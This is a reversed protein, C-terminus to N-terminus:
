AELVPALQARTTIGLKPFIHYLHAGVTRPSIYLRQGIERNTLGQAAMRAIQLEQETLQMWAGPGSHQSERSARLEQRARDVWPTAGLALLSDRAARLPPRAQVVKRRRRLWTGYQLLLRARYLPWATLDDRLAAQFLAEANDDDAVLPRAYAIGVELRPSPSRRARHECTALQERAEDIRGAHLAAEAFEGIRWAARIHHHAPDHPDFTRRLHEFAEEHRGASLALLARAFQTDALVASAARPVAIAEAEALLSEAVQEDGHIACTAALATKAAAEWLPRGLQSALKAAQEAAATAGSWNGTGVANWAQLALAEPLLWMIGQRRLGGIAEALLIASRDFAGVMHLATGLAFATEPDCSTPAAQSVAHSITDGAGDPDAMAVISLVRPDGEPASLGQAAAVIRDRIDSGADSWWSRLAAARLLRVAVDNGEVASAEEAAEVLSAVALSDTVPRAEVLDRLLRTRALDLPTCGEPNIESLLRDTRDIEGLDLALEAAGLLRQQRVSSDATLEAARELAAVRVSPGRCPTATVWAAELEDAVGEDPGTISAARHWASRHRDDVLVAALAAHARRRRTAPERQYIVAPLLPHRFDLRTGDHGVLGGDVAPAVDDVSPVPDDGLVAAAALIEDLTARQDVSAVLLITRTAAPLHLFQEGFVRDLRATTPLRDPRGFMARDTRPAAALEVLALPNGAAEALLRARLGADLGPARRELLAIASAEDLADICLEPVSFGALATEHGDRLAILLAVPEPALRRAVFGLVTATVPDLWHGDDVVILLPRKSAVSALLELTAVAITFTDRTAPNVTEITALLAEHHPQPQGQAAELLPRLIQHLGALPVSAESRVGSAAWVQMGLNEARDAGAALLVSKGAGPEGRLLLAGGRNAANALFADLADLERERGVLAPAPLSGCVEALSPASSALTAADDDIDDDACLATSAV